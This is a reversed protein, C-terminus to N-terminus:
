AIGTQSRHEVVQDRSHEALRVIRGKNRSYAEATCNRLTALLWALMPGDWKPQLILPAHEMLLWKLAKKPVDPAAWPSAYGPSIEGANAFSTELAPGARRDVVTVEHGARALYFASTVGIVGGGLVAVKM